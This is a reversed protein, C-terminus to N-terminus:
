LYSKEKIIKKEQLYVPGSLSKNISREMHYIFSSLFSFDIIIMIRYLFASNFYSVIQRKDLLVKFMVNVHGSTYKLLHVTTLFM